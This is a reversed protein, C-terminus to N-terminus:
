PVAPGKPLPANQRADRFEFGYLFARMLYFKAQRANPPAAGGGTWKVQVAERDGKSPACDARSFSALPKGDKDLLEVQLYGEHFGPKSAKKAPRTRLDVWLEKGSLDKATTVAEGISPGGASSALAYMRDVRWAARCLAANFPLFYTFKDAITEMANIRKSPIRSDAMQRHAGETAGYYVYLTKDEVILNQSQWIMGGGYDGLPANDLCAVRDPFWWHRGDRSAAMRLDLTQSLPHYMTVMALYGGAVKLPVLEQYQTDRHDLEDATIATTPDPDELWAKGDRSTSRFISRRPTDEYPPLHDTAQRPGTARYYCVQGGEPQRYFFALDWKNMSGQVKGLPEWKKGDKSRYRYYGNGQPPKGHAKSGQYERLAIMAYPWERNEPDVFVSPYASVGQSLDFLANTKAHEGISENSLEPRTWHVGDNSEFLCLRRYAANDSKWPEAKSMPAFEAPTCVLYAKWRSDLPDKFVSGHIGAGGADWPMEGEILPNQPDLEGREVRWAVLKLESFDDPMLLPMRSPTPTDVGLLGPAQAQLPPCFCAMLLVFYLIPRTATTRLM